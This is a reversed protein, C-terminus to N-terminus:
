PDKAISDSTSALPTYNRRIRRIKSEFTTQMQAKELVLRNVIKKWAGFPQPISSSFLDKPDRQRKVAREELVEVLADKDKSELQLEVHKRNLAHFREEWVDREQKM